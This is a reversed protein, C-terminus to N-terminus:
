RRKGWRWAWQGDTKAQCLRIFGLTLAAILIAATAAQWARPGEPLDAPLAAVSLVLAVIVAVYGLVAVWGKWNAPTAGYGYTKPKFWYDAM